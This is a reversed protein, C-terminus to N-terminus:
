AVFYSGSVCITGATDIAIDANTGGGVPYQRLFIQNSNLIFGIAINSSTLTISELIGITVSSRDTTNTNRATFPLGGVRMSGTGTHATWVIYTSFNVVNGIKTYFGGQSTYTGVGASTVGFITPTFTGEEYDDLTNVDISANQTAPFKIQGATTVIGSFTPNAKPALLSDIIDANENTVKAIDYNETILPKILSYNTTLNPM